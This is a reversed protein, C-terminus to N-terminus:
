VFVCFCGEVDCGKIRRMCTYGMISALLYLSMNLTGHSLRIELRSVMM